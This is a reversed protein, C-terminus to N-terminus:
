KGLEGARGKGARAGIGDDEAVVLHDALDNVCVVFLMGVAPDAVGYRRDFVARNRKSHFLSGGDFHHRIIQQRGGVHHIDGLAVVMVVAGFRPASPM